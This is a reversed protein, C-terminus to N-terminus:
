SKTTIYKKTSILHLKKKKMLLLCSKKCQSHVKQQHLDRRQILNAVKLRPQFKSRSSNYPRKLLSKGTLTSWSM